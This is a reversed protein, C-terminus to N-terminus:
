RSDMQKPKQKKGSRMVRDDNRSQRPHAGVSGTSTCLWKRADNKWWSSRELEDTKAERGGGTAEGAKNRSRKCQSM